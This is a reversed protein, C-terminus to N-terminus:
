FTLNDISDRGEDCVIALAVFMYVLGLIYLIVWGDQREEISFLDPPFLPDPEDAKKSIKASQNKPAADDESSNGAKEEGGGGGGETEENALLHRFLHSRKPRDEAEDFARLFSRADEATYLQRDASAPALQPKSVVPDLLGTFKQFALLGAFYLVCLLAYQGIREPDKWSGGGRSLFSSRKIHRMKLGM